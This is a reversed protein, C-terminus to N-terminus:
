IQKESATILYKYAFVGLIDPYTYLKLIGNLDIGYNM